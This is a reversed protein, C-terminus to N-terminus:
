RRDMAAASARGNRSMGAHVPGALHEGPHGPAGRDPDPGDLPQPDHDPRTRRRRRNDMFSEFGYVAVLSALLALAAAAAAARRPEGKLPQGKTAPVVRHMNIHTSAPAELETQREDLIEIARATVKETIEQAEEATPATGQVFVFPGTELLEPNTSGNTVQYGVSGGPTVGLDSAVELTTMQQITISAALSLSRDFSLLPNTLSTPDSSEVSETSGTLPSTLVLVSTSQYPLPSSTYAFAALALSGLFAPVSVYWRRVLVSLTQWFDM